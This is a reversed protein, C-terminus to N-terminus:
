GPSNGSIQPWPELWLAGCIFIDVIGGGCRPGNIFRALFIGSLSIGVNPSKRLALRHVVGRSLPLPTPPLSAFGFGRQRSRCSRHQSRHSRHRSRLSRRKRGNWGTRCGNGSRGNQFRSRRRRGMEAGRPVSAAAGITSNTAAKARVAAPTTMLPENALDNPDVSV